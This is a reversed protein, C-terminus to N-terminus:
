GTITEAHASAAILLVKFIYIYKFLNIMNILLIFLHSPMKNFACKVNVHKTGLTATGDM